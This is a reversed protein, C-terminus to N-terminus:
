DEARKKQAEIQQARAQAAVQELGKRDWVMM